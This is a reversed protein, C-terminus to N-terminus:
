PSDNGDEEVKHYDYYHLFTHTVVDGLRVDDRGKIAGGIDVLLLNRPYWAELMAGVFTAAAINERDLPLGTAVIAPGGDQLRVSGWTWQYGQRLTYKSLSFISRVADYAEPLITLIAVDAISPAPALEQHSSM